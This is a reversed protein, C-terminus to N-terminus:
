ARLATEALPYLRRPNSVLLQRRTAEDPAFAAVLDILDGDDPMNAVNPHPWDTGWLVREPAADILARAFPVVDHYPPGSATLREAGSLKVWCRDDRLLELLTRFPAQALGAGAPIRAMHDIVYPVPLRDLLEAHDGLETADFHLVVHWGLEAVREVVRALREPAPAGGLHSVFNFRTGRVGADHLERLQDDDIEEDIMAVGAYRGAGRRLADLMASNDTGHCSAQVFVAHSLGLREQLRQFDAIGADPPTYSREPAFPFRAAPGFVHCHADVAGGPPTFARPPHPDPHPPPITREM